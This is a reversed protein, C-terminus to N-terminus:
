EEEIIVPLNTYVSKGEKTLFGTYRDSFCNFREIKPNIPKADTYTLVIGDVVVSGESLSMINAPTYQKHPGQAYPYISVRFTKEM